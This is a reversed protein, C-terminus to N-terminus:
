SIRRRLQTLAALVRDRLTPARGNFLRDMVRGLLVPDLCPCAGLNDSYRLRPDISM